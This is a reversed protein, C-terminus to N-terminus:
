LAPSITTTTTPQNFRNPFLGSVPGSDLPSSDSAQILEHHSPPIFSHSAHPPLGRNAPYAASPRIPNNCYSALGSMFPHPCVRAHALHESGRLRLSTYSGQSPLTIYGYFPVFQSASRHHLHLFPSFLTLPLATSQLLLALYSCVASVASRIDIPLLQSTPTSDVPHAVHLHSRAKGQTRTRSAPATPPPSFRPPSTCHPCSRRSPRSPLCPSPTSPIGSRAGYELMISNNDSPVESFLRLYTPVSLHNVAFLSSLLLHSCFHRKMM